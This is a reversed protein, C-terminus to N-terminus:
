VYAFWPKKEQSNEIITLKFHNSLDKVILFIKQMESDIGSYMGSTQIKELVCWTRVM